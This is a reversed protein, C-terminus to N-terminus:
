SAATNTETAPKAFSSRWDEMLLKYGIIGFIMPFLIYQYQTWVLALLTDALGGPMNEFNAFVETFSFIFTSAIPEGAGLVPILYRYPSQKNNLHFFWITALLNVISYIELTYFTPDHNVTRLDVSGFSALAWWYMNLPSERMYATNAVIDDLTNINDFVFPSFLMWPIEWIVNTIAYALMWMVLLDHYVSMKDRTKNVSLLLYAVLWGNLWISISYLSAKASFAFDMAGFYFLVGCLGSLGLWFASWVKFFKMNDSHTSREPALAGSPLEGPIYAATSM